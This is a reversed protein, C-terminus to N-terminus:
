IVQTADLTGLIGDITWFSTYIEFEAIWGGWWQQMYWRNNWAKTRITQFSLSTTTDTGFVGDIWDGFFFGSFLDEADVGYNSALDEVIVDSVEVLLDGFLYFDDKHIEESDIAVLCHPLDYGLHVVIGTTAVRTLSVSPDAALAYYRDWAWTVGRGELETGLQDLYRAAFDVVLDRTWDPHEFEGADIAEVARLTIPRYVTAFLGRPDECAEFITAIADIRYAVDYTDTLTSTDALELLAETAVPGVAQGQCDVEIETGLRAESGASGYRHAPDACGTQLFLFAVPLSALLRHPM